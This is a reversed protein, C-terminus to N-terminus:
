MFKYILPITERLFLILSKLRSWCSCLDWVGNSARYLPFVVSLSFSFLVNNSVNDRLLFFPLSHSKILLFSFFLFMKLSKTELFFLTVHTFRQKAPRYFYHSRERKQWYRLLHFIKWLKKVEKKYKHPVQWIQILVCICSIPSVKRKM